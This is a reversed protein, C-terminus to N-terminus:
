YNPHKLWEEEQLLLYDLFGGKCFFELKEIERSRNVDFM